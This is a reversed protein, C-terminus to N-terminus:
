NTEFEVVIPDVTNKVVGKKEPENTMFPWFAENYNLYNVSAPAPLSIFKNAFPNKMMTNYADDFHPKWSNSISITELTSPIGSDNLYEVPTLTNQNTDDTPKSDLSVYNNVSLSTKSLYFITLFLAKNNNKYQWYKKNFASPYYKELEESTFAYIRFQYQGSFNTFDLIESYLPKFKGPNLAAIQLKGFSIIKDDKNKHQIISDTKFKLLPKNNHLLVKGSEDKQYEYIGYSPDSPDIPNLNKLSNIKFSTASGRVLWKNSKTDYIFNEEKKNEKLKISPQYTCSASMLSFPVAVSSLILFKSIIKKM